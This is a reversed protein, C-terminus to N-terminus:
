YPVHSSSLMLPWLYFGPCLCTGPSLFYVPLFLTLRSLLGTKHFEYMVNCMGTLCGFGLCKGTLILTHNKGCAAGVVSHDKLSEIVTPLDRRKTDGVGLQGKENRGLSTICENINFHKCLHFSPNSLICIDLL